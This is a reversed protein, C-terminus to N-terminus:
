VPWFRKENSDLKMYGGEEFLPAGYSKIEQITKKAKM